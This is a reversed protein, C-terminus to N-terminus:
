GTKLTKVYWLTTEGPTQNFNRLRISVGQKIQLITGNESQNLAANKVWRGREGPLATYIRWDKCLPVVGYLTEPAGSRPPRGTPYCAACKGHKILSMDDKGLIPPHCAIRTDSFTGKREWTLMALRALAPSHTSYNYSRSYPM